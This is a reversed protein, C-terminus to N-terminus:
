SSRSRSSENRDVPVQSAENLDATVLSSKPNAPTVYRPATTDVMYYAHELTPAIVYINGM